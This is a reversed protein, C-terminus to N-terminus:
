KSSKRRTLEGEVRWHSCAKCNISSTRVLSPNGMAISFSSPGATVRDNRPISMSVM